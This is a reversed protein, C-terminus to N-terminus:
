PEHFRETTVAGDGFFAVAVQDTGRVKASLAAGGGRAAPWSATTGLLGTEPAYLHM